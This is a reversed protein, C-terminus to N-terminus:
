SPRPPPGSTLTCVKKDYGGGYFMGQAAASGGAIEGISAVASTWCSYPLSDKETDIPFFNEFYLKFKLIKLAKKYIRKATRTADDHGTGHGGDEEEDEDSSADSVAEVKVKVMPTARLQANKGKSM